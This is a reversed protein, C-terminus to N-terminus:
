KKNFTYKYQKWSLNIDPGRYEEKTENNADLKEAKKLASDIYIEKLITGVEYSAESRFLV